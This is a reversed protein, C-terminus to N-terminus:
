SPCYPCFFPTIDPHSAGLLTGLHYGSISSVPSISVAEIVPDAV